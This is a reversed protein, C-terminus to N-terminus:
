NTYGYYYVIRETSTGCLRIDSYTHIIQAYVCFSLPKAKRGPEATSPDRPSSGNVSFYIPFGASFYIEIFTGRTNQSQISIVPHLLLM